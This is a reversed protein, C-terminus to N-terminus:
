GSESVTASACPDTDTVEIFLTYQAQITSDSDLVASITLEYTDPTVGTM